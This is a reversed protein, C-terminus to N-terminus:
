NITAGVTTLVILRKEILGERRLNNRSLVANELTM